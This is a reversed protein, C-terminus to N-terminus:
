EIDIKRLTCQHPIALIIHNDPLLHNLPSYLEHLEELGFDEDLEYDLLYYIKEKRDAGDVM